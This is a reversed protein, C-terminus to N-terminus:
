NLTETKQNEIATFDVLLIQKEVASKLLEPRLRRISMSCITPQIDQILQVFFARRYKNRMANRTVEVRYTLVEDIFILCIAYGDLISVIVLAQM